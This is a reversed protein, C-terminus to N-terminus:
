WSSTTATRFFDRSPDSTLEDLALINWIQHWNTISPRFFCWILLATKYFQKNAQSKTSVQLQLYHIKLTGEKFFMYKFFHHEIPLYSNGLNPEKKNLWHSPLCITEHFYKFSLDDNFKSTISLMDWLYENACVTTITKCFISM